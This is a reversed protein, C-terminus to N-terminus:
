EEVAVLGGSGDIGLPEDLLERGRGGQQPGDGLGLVQGGGCGDAGGVILNRLAGHIGQLSGDASGLAGQGGDAGEVLTSGLSGFEVGGDGSEIGGEVGHALKVLSLGVDDGVVASAHEGGGCRAVGGDGCQGVLAGGLLLEDREFGDGALGHGVVEARHGQAGVQGEATGIVGLPLLGVIVVGGDLHHLQGAAPEAQAEEGVAQM